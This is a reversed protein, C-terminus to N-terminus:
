VLKTGTRWDYDSAHPSSLFSSSTYPDSAYPTYSSSFTEMERESPRVTRSITRPPLEDDVFNVQEVVGQTLAEAMKDFSKYDKWVFFGYLFLAVFIVVNLGGWTKLFSSGNVWGENTVICANALSIFTTILLVWLLGYMKDKLAKRKKSEFKKILETDSM